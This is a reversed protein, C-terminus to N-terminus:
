RIYYIVRFIVTSDAYYIYLKRKVELAGRTRQAAYFHQYNTAIQMHNASTPLIEKAM